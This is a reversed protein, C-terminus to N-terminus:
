LNRDKGSTAARVRCFRRKASQASPIISGLSTPAGAVGCFGAEEIEWFQSVGDWAEMAEPEVSTPALNSNILINPCSVLLEIRCSSGSKLALTKEM